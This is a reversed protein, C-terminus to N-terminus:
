IRCIQQLNCDSAMQKYAKIFKDASCFHSDCGKVRVAKEQVLTLIKYKADSSDSKKPKDDKSCKHLIAAFNAGFPCVLSSKWKRDDNLCISEQSEDDINEELKDFLGLGSYLRKMLGAHSFHLYTKKENPRRM